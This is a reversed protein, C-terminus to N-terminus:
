LQLWDNKETLFFFFFNNEEDFFFWRWWVDLRYFIFFMEFQKWQKTTTTTTTATRPCWTTQNALLGWVCSSVALSWCIFFGIFSNNCRHGNIFIKQKEEQFLDNISQFLLFFIAIVVFIFIHFVYHDSVPSYLNM